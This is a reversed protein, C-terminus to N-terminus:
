HPVATAAPSRRAAAAAPVEPAVRRQRRGDRTIRRRLVRDDRRTLACARRVLLDQQSWSLGDLEGDADHTAVVVCGRLLPVTKATFTTTALLLETATENAGRQCSRTSPSFWFDFQRDASTLCQLGGDHVLQALDAKSYAQTEYATGNPHFYLVTNMRIDWEVREDSNVTTAFDVVTVVSVRTVVSVFRLLLRSVGHKADVADGGAANARGVSCEIVYM